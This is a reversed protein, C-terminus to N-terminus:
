FYHLIGSAFLHMAQTTPIGDLSFAISHSTHLVKGLLGREQARIIPCSEPEMNFKLHALHRVQETGSQGVFPELFVARSNLSV